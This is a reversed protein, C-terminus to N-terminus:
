AKSGRIHGILTRGLPAVPHLLALAGALFVALIAVGAQGRRFAGIFAVLVVALPVVRSWHLPSPRVRAAVGLPSISVKRLSSGASLAAVAVVGLAALPLAWWPLLLEAYSF